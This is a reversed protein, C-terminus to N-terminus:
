GVTAVVLRRAAADSRRFYEEEDILGLAEDVLNKVQDRSPRWGELWADALSQVVARRQVADLEAFLEPWRQELDFKQEM